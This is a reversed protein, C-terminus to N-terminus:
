PQELEATAQVLYKEALSGCISLLRVQQHQLALHEEIRERGIVGLHARLESNEILFAIQKAMDIPDNPKAYLSAEGATVRQETLGYSVIPKGLAMYDMLKNTTSIDNVPNSPAPEICIDAASLCSIWQEFRLYGTFLVRDLIGLERALRQLGDLDDSPGILICYWDQHNFEKDLHYLAQLLHDIGDEKAMSGLYGIIFRARSRIDADPKVLYGRMLDPGQRVVSVRSPNLGDREIVINRYTENTTIVHNAIRCTIREFWVLLTYLIKNHKEYKSMYLEPSLDRLDFLITKGSLKPLLAAIVLTDPPNFVHLIDLGHRFWVWLTLLTMVFTAHLFEMLYSTTKSGYAPLSFRYVQVGNVKEYKSQGKRRPSIVSVDYGAAALTELHPRVRADAPYAHNEVLAVWHIKKGNVNGCTHNNFM